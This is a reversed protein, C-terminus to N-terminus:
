SVSFKNKKKKEKRKGGEKNRYGSSVEIKPESSPYNCGEQTQVV